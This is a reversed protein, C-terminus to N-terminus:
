RSWTVRFRVLQLAECLYSLCYLIYVGIFLVHENSLKSIQMKTEFINYLEITEFDVNLLNAIM